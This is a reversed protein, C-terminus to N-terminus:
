KNGNMKGKLYSLDEGHKDVKIEIEHIRDKIEKIDGTIHKIHNLRTVLSYGISGIAILTPIISWEIM